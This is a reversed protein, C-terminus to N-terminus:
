ASQGFHLAPPQPLPRWHTADNDRIALSDLWEGNVFCGWSIGGTGQYRRPYFLLVPVGDRPASEIPRWMAKEYAAIAFSAIEEAVVSDPCVHMIEKAAAEIAKDHPNTM